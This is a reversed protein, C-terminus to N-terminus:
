ETEDLQEKLSKAMDRIEKKNNKAGISSVLGSVVAKGWYAFISKEKDRETFIDGERVFLLRPNKSNVVFTNAFFSKISVGHGRQLHTDADLVNIKLDNYYFKMKGYAYDENGDFSFSISKNIGDRIQVYATNELFRNLETLNMEGVSGRLTYKDLPDKYDFSSM